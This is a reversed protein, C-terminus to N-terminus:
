HRTQKAYRKGITELEERLPQLEKEKEELAKRIELYRFFDQESANMCIEFSIPYTTITLDM